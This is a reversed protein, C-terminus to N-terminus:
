RSSLNEIWLAVDSARYRPSKGIYIPDVDFSHELGNNRKYRQQRIWQYSMSVLRAIQKDNM